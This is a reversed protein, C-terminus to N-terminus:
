PSGPRAAIFNRVKDADIWPWAAALPMELAAIIGTTGYAHNVNQVADGRLESIRPQAELRVIRAAVVNGLDRLGGYNISGVGGSGGAVFGGITATRKTSAHMRVQFGPPRVKVDVDHMETGAAARAIGPRQWEINQLASMDLVIGGALPVAQGYNGTGSGRPTIPVGHRVAAVRLLDGENRPTVIAEASKGALEANLVPSYWFFDRSRRRVMQRDTTVPVGAIDDLFAPLAASPEAVASATDQYAATSAM